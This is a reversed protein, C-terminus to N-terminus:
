IGRHINANYGSYYEVLADIVRQPKQNTAANDFYVLDRGNIQQHLVPFQKRILDIDISTATKQVTEM